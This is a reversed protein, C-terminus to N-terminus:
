NIPTINALNDKKLKELNNESLRFSPAKDFPPFQQSLVDM